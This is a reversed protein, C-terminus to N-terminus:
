EYDVLYVYSIYTGKVRKVAKLLPTKGKWTFETVKTYHNDLKDELFEAINLDTTEYVAKYCIRYKDFYYKYWLSNQHNSYMLLFDSKELSDNNVVLLNDKEKDMREKITERRELVFTQGYFSTATVFLLTFLVVNRM